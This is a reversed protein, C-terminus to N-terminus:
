LEGLDMKTKLKIHFKRFETDNKFCKVYSCVLKKQSYSLVSLHTKIKDDIAHADKHCDCCLCMLEGAAYDWIMADIKYFPHHVHLQKGESKCEQCAFGYHEFVELRKKQWKPHKIQDAYKM